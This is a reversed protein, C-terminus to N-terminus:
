GGFAKAIIFMLNTASEEDPWAYFNDTHDGDHLFERVCIASKDYIFVQGCKM